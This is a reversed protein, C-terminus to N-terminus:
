DKDRSRKFYSMIHYGILFGFLMLVVSVVWDLFGHLPMIHGIFPLNLRDVLYILLPGTLLPVVFFLFDFM